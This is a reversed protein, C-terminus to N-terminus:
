YGGTGVQSSFVVTLISSKLRSTQYTLKHNSSYVQIDSNYFGLALYTTHWQGSNPCLTM